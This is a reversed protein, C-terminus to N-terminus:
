MPIEYVARTSDILILSGNDKIQSDSIYPTWPAKIWPIDMEKKHSIEWLMRCDIVSIVIIYYNSAVYMLGNATCIHPVHIVGYQAPRQFKIIPQNITHKNLKSVDYIDHHEVMNHVLITKIFGSKYSIHTYDKADYKLRYNVKQFKVFLGHWALEYIDNYKYKQLINGNFAVINGNSIQAALQGNFEVIKEAHGSISVERANCGDYGDYIRVRNFRWSALCVTTKVITLFEYDEDQPPIIMRIRPGHKVYNKILYAITRSDTLNGMKGFGSMHCDIRASCEAYADLLAPNIAPHIARTLQM